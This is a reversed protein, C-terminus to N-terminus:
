PAAEPLIGRDQTAGALHFGSGDVSHVRDPLYEGAFWVVTQSALLDRLRAV